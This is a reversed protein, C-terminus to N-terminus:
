RYLRQREERCIMGGDEMMAGASVERRDPSANDILEQRSSVMGDIQEFCFARDIGQCKSNQNM